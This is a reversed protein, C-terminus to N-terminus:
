FFISLFKQCWSMSFIPKFFNVWQGDIVDHLNEFENTDVTTEEEPM